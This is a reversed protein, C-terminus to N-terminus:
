STQTRRGHKCLPSLPTIEYVSLRPTRLLHELDEWVAGSFLKRLLRPRARERTKCARKILAVELPVALNETLDNRLSLFLTGRSIDGIRPLSRQLLERSM